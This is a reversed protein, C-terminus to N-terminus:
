KDLVERVKKALDIHSFPKQIFELGEDLVGQKVISDDSHGSFFLVKLSPNKGKLEEALERGNMVPMIVDTILLDINTDHEKYLHLAEKGNKATLVSYGYYNLISLTVERVEDDDEVLFITENGKLKEPDTQLKQSNERPIEVMPFYVNFTSGEEPKSKVYIFGNNQKVIGYVTALGLGTGKDHDKTTYFPEFIQSRTSEDMGIGTDTIALMIFSGRQAGSHKQIYHDDFEINATEITLKGGLPMADRANIV